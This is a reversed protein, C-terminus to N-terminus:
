YIQHLRKFRRHTWGVWQNPQDLISKELIRHYQSLFSDSLKQIDIWLVGDKDRYSWGVFIPLNFKKQLRFPLPNCAVPNGFFSGEIYDDSSRYDQDLMFTILSKSEILSKLQFPNTTLDVIYNTKRNRMKLLLINALKSKLPQYSARLPIKELSLTSGFLEWNGLHATLLIGGQRLMPLVENTTKTYQVNSYNIIWYIFERTFHRILDNYFTECTIQKFLDLHLLNIKVIKRKWAFTKLLIALFWAFGSIWWNRSKM